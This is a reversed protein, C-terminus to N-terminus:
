AGLRRGRRPRARRGGRRARRSFPRVAVAVLQVRQARGARGARHDIRFSDEATVCRLAVREIAVSLIHAVCGGALGGGDARGGEGVSGSPKEMEGPSGEPTGPPVVSRQLIHLRDTAGRCDRSVGRDPARPSVAGIRRNPAFPARLFAYLYLSLPPSEARHTPRARERPTGARGRRSGFEAGWRRAMTRPAPGSVPGDPVPHAAGSGKTCGEAVVRGAACCGGDWWWPPIVHM